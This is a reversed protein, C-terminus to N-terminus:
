ATAPKNAKLFSRTQRVALPIRDVPEKWPFMSVESNPALMASEMAVAYPMANAAIGYNTVFIQEAAWAPAAAVIAALALLWRRMTM